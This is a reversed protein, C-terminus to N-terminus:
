FQIVFRINEAQGDERDTKVDNEAYLIDGTYPEFEPNSVAVVTRSVGSSEGILALGVRFTGNVRIIKTKSVQKTATDRQSDFHVNLKFIDVLM